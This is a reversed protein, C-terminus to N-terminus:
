ELAAGAASGAVTFLAALDRDNFRLMAGVFFDRGYRLEDFLMPRELGEDPGPTIPLYGPANMADDIGGLVYIYPLFEYAASVKLRPLRDFSADFVDTQLTLERGFWEGNFDLGVGGTSEKLGYRLTAWSLRKALQFTFRIEDEITVRRLYQSDNMSPDYILSVEPLGGRPGKALEILYYKDPRPALELSVYSRLSGSGVTYESRLGVYTQLNLLGDLFGKADETIDEVNDAITPDNVLRGLTGEDEDIKGTISSTNAMIDDVMDLKERVKSGTQEVETRASVVLNRAESSAAELEELIRDIQSNRGGTIDRVDNTIAQINVMSRDLRELIRAVTESETQVLGDIRESVSLLPGNVVRRLDESLDRVSLLVNDVNPMSEDIRRLLEDPSTAEVVTAVTDDAGLRTNTVINGTADLAEPTGPDLELYYDGLLSSSKKFVIANSWVPLDERVRFGIRAYRGEIDLDIIEGVPLGAVVVRSGKPLGSADRFMAGLEFSKEGSSPATVASWVGYTGLVMVVFLIGVKIGNSLSKM